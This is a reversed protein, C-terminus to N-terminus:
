NMWSAIREPIGAEIFRATHGPCCLCLWPYPRQRDILAFIESGDWPIRVVMQDEALPLYFLGVPEEAGTWAILATPRDEPEGRIEQIDIPLDADKSM